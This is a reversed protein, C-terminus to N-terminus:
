NVSPWLAGDIEPFDQLLRTVDPETAQRVAHLTARDVMPKPCVLGVRRTYESPPRWRDPDVGLFTFTRAAERLPDKVCQEYQLVLLQDREFHYLLNRLQQWYFGRHFQHEMVPGTLAGGFKLHHGLASVFRELPDRLMVLLRASPAAARLMPPTWFDYMYRPTWEGAICGEPRPFYRHYSVPDIEEVRGYHDFFHIEKARYLRKNTEGASAPASDSSCDRPSAIDPHSTLISWWWTTGSKMAGVGVFDPPRVEWGSPVEPPERPPVVDNLVPLRPVVAQRDGQTETM